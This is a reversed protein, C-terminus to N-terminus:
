TGFSRYVKSFLRRVLGLGRALNSEVRPKDFLPFDKPGINNSFVELIPGSNNSTSVGYDNGKATELGDRKWRAEAYRLAIGAAQETNLDLAVKKLRGYEGALVNENKLHQSGWGMEKDNYGLKRAIQLKRAIYTKNWPCFGYHFVMLQPAIKESSPHWSSHRGPKYMGVPLSHYFRCRSLVNPLGLYLRKKPNLFYTENFGFPKQTTLALGQSPELDPQQDVMIYGTTACGKNNRSILNKEIEDLQLAPMLFETTNLVIKWGAGISREYEMVEMDTLFVDFRSLKSRVIQWHPALKKVVEVSGDTSGHDILIGREFLTKHHNVWWPLLYEENFFHSILTRM